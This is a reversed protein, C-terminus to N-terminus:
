DPGGRTPPWPTVPRWYTGAPVKPPSRMYALKKLLSSHDIRMLSAVPRGTPPALVGTSSRKAVPKLAGGIPSSNSGIVAFSSKTEVYSAVRSPLLWIRCIAPKALVAGVVVVIAAAVVLVVDDDVVLLEVLELVEVEFGEVVLVTGVVVLVDVDFGVVVLVDDVVLLEVLELVEVELGVVVLVLLLELVEVDFGVVVEVDEVVVDVEVDFTGVVLVDDVV